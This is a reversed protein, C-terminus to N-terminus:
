QAPYPSSGEPAVRQQQNIQEVIKALKAALDPELQCAQAFAVTAQNTHGSLLLTQGFSIYLLANTPCLNVARDFQEQAAEFKGQEALSKGLGTLAKLNDPKLRVAKDFQSAAESFKGQRFFLTGLNIYPESNTPALSILAIFNSEAEALRGLKLQLEALVTLAPVNEPELRVATAIHAAADDSQGMKYLAIGLNFHAEACDPDLRIAELYERRAQDKRGLLFLCSALGHHPPAWWPALRLAAEYQKLAENPNGLREFISGLREHAFYYSPDADLSARFFSIAANFDGQEEFVTGMEFQAVANDKTVALTHEFLTRTNQWYKVQRDTIVVCSAIVLAASGALAARGFRRGELLDTAGWVVCIFIGILPIYTYRDAMAQGGVQVIGLVPVLTVLFWFWGVTLWPRRRSCLLVAASLSVLGILAACILWRPWQESLPYRIDPHPYFVALDRPWLTKGLYKWYSAIANALRSAVPLGTPFAHSKEQAVLTLLSSIIAFLLFPMKESFLRSLLPRSDQFASLSMRRLPWYDLLALVFPTTVVMPKSM